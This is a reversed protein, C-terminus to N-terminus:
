VLQGGQDAIAALISARPHEGIDPIATSGHKVIHALNAAFMARIAVAPGYVAVMAAAAEAAGQSHPAIRPIQKARRTIAQDIVRHIEAPPTTKKARAM